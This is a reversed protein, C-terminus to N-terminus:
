RGLEVADGAALSFLLWSESQDDQPEGDADGEHSTPEDPDLAVVM